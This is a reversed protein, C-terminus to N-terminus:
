HNFDGWVAFPFQVEAKAQRILDLWEQYGNACAEATLGLTQCNAVQLDSHVRLFSDVAAQQRNTFHLTHTGDPSTQMSPAAQSSKHSQQGVLLGVTALALPFAFLMRYKM